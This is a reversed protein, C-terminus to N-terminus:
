KKRESCEAFDERQTIRKPFFEDVIVATNEADKM